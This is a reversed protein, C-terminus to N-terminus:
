QDGGRLTLGDRYAHYAVAGEMDIGHEEELDQALMEEVNALCKYHDDKDSEDDVIRMAISIPVAMTVFAGDEILRAIKEPTM